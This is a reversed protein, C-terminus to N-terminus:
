ASINYRGSYGIIRNNREVTARLLAAEGAANDANRRLRRLEGLLNFRSGSAAPTAEAVPTSASRNAFVFLSAAAVTSLGVVLKLRNRRRIVEGHHEYASHRRTM